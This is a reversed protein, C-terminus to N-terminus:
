NSENILKHYNQLVDNVYNNTLEIYKAGEIKFGWISHTALIVQHNNAIKKIVKWLLMESLLDLGHEPEDLLFTMRTTPNGNGAIMKNIFHQIPKNPNKIPKLLEPAKTQGFAVKLYDSSRVQTMQGASCKSFTERLGLDSFDDDFQGGIIGKQISPDCYLVQTGDYEEIDKYYDDAAINSRSRDLEAISWYTLKQIGGQKCHLLEAMLDIITSKGAGNAGVIINLNPSFEINGNNPLYVVKAMHKIHTKTKDKIKLSNIM